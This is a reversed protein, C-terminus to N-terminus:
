GGKSALFNNIIDVDITKQQVKEKRKVSRFIVEEITDRAILYLIVMTREQGTREIRKIAQYVTDARYDISYFVLYRAVTLKNVGYAASSPQCIIFRVNPDNVFAKQNNLKDKASTEGYIHVAKEGFYDLLTKIEEKYTAFIVVKEDEPIESLWEKLVELKPNKKSLRIVDKKESQTDMIFGSAIQRLKGLKALDISVEVKKDKLEIFLEEEMKEYHKRLKDDLFVDLKREVLEPLDVCDRLRCRFVRHKLASNVAEITGIHGDSGHARIVPKTGVYTGANRDGIDVMNFNEILFEKYDPGLTLGGDLFLFQSWLDQPGQPSPTGSLIRKYRTNEGIRLLSKLIKGKPNKLVTSEDVVIYDYNRNKLDDEFALVGEHNIIDIDYGGSNIKRKINNSRVNIIDVTSLTEEGYKIDGVQKWKRIKRVHRSEKFERASALTAEKGSGKFYYETRKFTKGKGKPKKGHNCVVEVDKIETKSKQPEWLVQSSLHTAEAVDEHWGSFLTMLKGVVLVSNKSLINKNYKDEIDWLTTFSKGSGCDMFLAGSYFAKLYQLAELQHKFPELKFDVNFDEKSPTGNSTSKVIEKAIKFHTYEEKLKDIYKQGEVIQADPYVKKLNILQRVGFPAKWKKMRKDFSCRTSVRAADISRAVPIDMLIWPPRIKVPIM